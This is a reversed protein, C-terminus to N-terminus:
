SLLFVCFGFVFQVVVQRRWSKMGSQSTVDTTM